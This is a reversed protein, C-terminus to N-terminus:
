RIPTPWKFDEDDSIHRLTVNVVSVWRDRIKERNKSSAKEADAYTEFDALANGQGFLRVDVPVLPHLFQRIEDEKIDYALGNIWVINETKADTILGNIFWDLEAQTSSSIKLKKREPGTRMLGLAKEQDTLSTLQLFTMQAPIDMKRWMPDNINYMHHVGNEGGVINCGVHNAFFDYVDRRGQNHPLGVIKIVHNSHFGRTLASSSKLFSHEFITVGTRCVLNLSSHFM